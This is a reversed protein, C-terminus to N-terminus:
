RCHHSKLLSCMYGWVSGAPHLIHNQENSESSTSRECRCEELQKGVFAATWTVCARGVRVGVQSAHQVHLRMYLSGPSDTELLRMVTCFITLFLPYANTHDCTIRRKDGGPHKPPWFGDKHQPRPASSSHWRQSFLTRTIPHLVRICLTNFHRLPLMCGYTIPPTCESM